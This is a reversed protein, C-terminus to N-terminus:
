NYNIVVVLDKSNSYVGAAANSDINLDGNIKFTRYGNVPSNQNEFDDKLNSIMLNGQPGMLSIPMSPFTISVQNNALDGIAFEASTEAPFRTPVNEKTSLKGATREFQM